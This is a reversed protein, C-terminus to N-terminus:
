QKGQLFANMRGVSEYAWQLFLGVSEDDLEDLFKEYTGIIKKDEDKIFEWLVAPTFKEVLDATALVANQMDGAIKKSDIKAIINRLILGKRVPNIKKTVFTKENVVIEITKKIESM